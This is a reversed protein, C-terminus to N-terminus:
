KCLFATEILPIGTLASSYIGDLYPQIQVITRLYLVHLLLHAKPIELEPYATQLIAFFELQEPFAM